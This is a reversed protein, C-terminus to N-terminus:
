NSRDTTARNDGIGHFVSSLSSLFFNNSLKQHCKLVPAEPHFVIKETIKANGIPVVFLNYTKTEQGRICKLVTKKM